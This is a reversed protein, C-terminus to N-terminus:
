KLTEEFSRLHAYMDDSIFTGRVGQIAELGSVYGGWRLKRLMICLIVKRNSLIERLEGFENQIHILRNSM